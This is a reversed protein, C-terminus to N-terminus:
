ARARARVARRLDDTQDIVTRQLTPDLPPGALLAEAAAVTDPSVSFRPYATRAIQVIANATLRRAVAPMEAFYRDVYGETLGLHEPQWFGDGAAAVLRPSLDGGDVILEWTRAKAAPDPIAARSRMAHEVGHASPDRESEAAIEPEGIAGLVALRYTIAWRLDTDIALGDPVDEGRLWGALTAADDAGACRIFGRTAALQRSDRAEEIVRRCAAALARLAGPRDEPRSARDAAFGRAFTVVAQFVAVETETPLGAAALEVFRAAPREGDRHCRRCGVVGRGAGAHRGLAAVDPCARWSAPDFRIKAFTLDGDNLLLLRGAAAGALEPM